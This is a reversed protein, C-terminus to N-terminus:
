PKNKEMLEPISIIVGDKLKEPPVTVDILQMDPWKGRTVAVIHLAATGKGLVLTIKM